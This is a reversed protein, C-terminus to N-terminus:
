PTRGQCEPAKGEFSPQSFFVLFTLTGPSRRTGASTLVRKLPTRCAAYAEAKQMM